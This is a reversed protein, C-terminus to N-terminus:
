PIREGILRESLLLASEVTEDMNCYKFEGLRGLVYLNHIESALALYRQYV